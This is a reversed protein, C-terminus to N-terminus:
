FREEVRVTEFGIDEAVGTAADLNRFLREEGTQTTLKFREGKADKFEVIWGNGTRSPEVLAEQLKGAEFLARVRDLNM